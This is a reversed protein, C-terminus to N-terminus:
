VKGLLSLRLCIDDLKTYVTNLMPGKTSVINQIGDELIKPWLSANNCGITLKLTFFHKKSVSLEVGLQSTKMQM